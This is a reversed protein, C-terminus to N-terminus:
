GNIYFKELTAFKPWCKVKFKLGIDSALVFMAHEREFQFPYNLCRKFTEYFYGLYPLKHLKPM